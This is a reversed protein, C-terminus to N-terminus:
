IGNGTIRLRWFIWLRELANRICNVHQCKPEQRCRKHRNEEVCLSMEPLSLIYDPKKMGTQKGRTYRQGKVISSHLVCSLRSPEFTYAVCEAISECKFKKYCKWMLKWKILAYFEISFLYLTSFAHFICEQCHMLNLIGDNKTFKAMPPDMRMTQRFVNIQYGCKWFYYSRAGSDPANLIRCSYSRCRLLKPVSPWKLHHRLENPRLEIEM